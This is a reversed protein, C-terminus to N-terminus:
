QFLEYKSKPRLAEQWSFGQLRMESPSKQRMPFITGDVNSRMVFKDMERNKFYVDIIDSTSQNIGTYASDGDQMYYISEASGKARVSDLGGDLFYADMRSSKIQNFAEKELHSVLFSNDFVEMWHPQKNKTHLLITDGTIQSEKGWVVPNVFMRFTSDKFSYFLSDCIAQTSDSYIRVNHFAEFYRNTSDEATSDKKIKGTALSLPSSSDKVTDDAAQRNALRLASDTAPITSKDRGPVVPGVQGSQSPKQRISSDPRPVTALSDTGITKAVAKRGPAPKAAPAAARQSAIKISDTELTGTTVASASDTVLTSDEARTSRIEYLDTLKASFLTDGAVYISDKDQKIIMVPKQTALVAENLRNQYILNAIIITGRVSDVVVANGEARAINDNLYVNDANLTTKNDDNIFPRDSFEAEGTQLNYFGERTDITRRASDRIHTQAIFRAVQTGTNYWLSDTTIDYAPDKVVVDKKFYVDKLDSYYLGERSTIVTKKNVIKGGDSYTGIHTNMNYVLHPTTLVVLGDTLKVNGDLNAIKTDGFYKLHDAYINTTDADKIHVKGWAEFTNLSDNKIARNCKFITNGQKLVVDGELTMLKSSPEITMENVNIVYITDRFALNRFSVTAKKEATSFAAMGMAAVLLPLLFYRLRSKNQIM